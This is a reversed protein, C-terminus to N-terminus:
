PFGGNKLLEAFLLGMGWLTGMHMLNIWAHWFSLTVVNHSEINYPIYLAKRIRLFIIEACLKFSDNVSNFLAGVLLGSVM